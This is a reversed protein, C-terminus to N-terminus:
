TRGRGQGVSGARYPRDRVSGPRAGRRRRGRCFPVRLARRLQQAVEEHRTVGVRKGPRHLEAHARGVLQGVTARRVFRDPQQQLEDRPEISAVPPRRGGLPARDELGEGECLDGDVTEGFAAGVESFRRLEGHRETIRRDEVATDDQETRRRSGLEVRFHDPDDALQQVEGRRVRGQPDGGLAPQARLQARGIGFARGLEGDFRQSM